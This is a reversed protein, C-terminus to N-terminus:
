GAKKAASHAKAFATSEDDGNEVAHNFAKMFAKKQDHEYQDTQDEPLDDISDYPM